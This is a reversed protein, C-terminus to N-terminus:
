LEPEERTDILRDQYIDQILKSADVLGKWSGRSRLFAERDSGEAVGVVTILVEQGEPLDTRELPELVGGRVRARITGGM